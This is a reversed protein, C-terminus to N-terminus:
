LGMDIMRTRMTRLASRVQDLEEATNASMVERTLRDEVQKAQEFLKRGAFTIQAVVTRKDHASSTREVWGRDEMGHLMHTIRTREYATWQALEQMTLPGRRLLASLVRFETAQLGLPRLAEQLARNRRYVVQTCLFFLNTELDM